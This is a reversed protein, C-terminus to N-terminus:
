EKKETRLTKLKSWRPDIMDEELSLNQKPQLEKLKEFIDSKLTGAAIGPHMRKAPMALVLMEFIYQKIDIECANHPMILVTENDNNFEEGFKVVLNLSSDVPLDFPENTVDCAVNFAGKAKFSLDFMNGNKEFDLTIKVDANLFDNYNYAEFFKNDIQYEFQHKGLKLGTFPIVYEKKLRKM